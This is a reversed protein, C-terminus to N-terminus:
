TTRLNARNNKHEKRAAFIYFLVIPWGIMFFGIVWLLKSEIKIHPSTLVDYLVFIFCPITTILAILLLTDAGEAHLIKSMLAYLFCLFSATFIAKLITGKM